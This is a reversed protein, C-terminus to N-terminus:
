GNDEGRMDAGCNPCYADYEAITQRVGCATCTAYQTGWMAPVRDVWKGHVVPTEDGCRLLYAETEAKGRKYGAEYALYLDTVIDAM